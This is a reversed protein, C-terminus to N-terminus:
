GAANSAAEDNDLVEHRIRLSVGGSPTGPPGLGELPGGERVEEVFIAYGGLEVVQGAHVAVRETKPPDGELVMQLVAVPGRRPAGREDVHDDTRVSGLGISLDGVTAQTGQAISVATVAGPDIAFEAPAAARDTSGCAALLLTAVAIAAVPRPAENM